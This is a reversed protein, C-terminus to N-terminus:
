MSDIPSTRLNRLAARLTLRVLCTITTFDPRCSAPALAAADCVPASAPDSATKSAAKRRAPTRRTVVMGSRKLMASIRDICGGGRPGARAITVLAPPGPTMATSSRIVRPPWSAGSLGSVSAARLAARGGNQLWALGM